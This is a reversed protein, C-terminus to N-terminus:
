QYHDKCKNMFKTNQLYVNISKANVEDGSGNKSCGLLRTTVSPLAENQVCSMYHKEGDPSLSAGRNSEELKRGKKGQLLQKRNKEESKKRIWKSTL